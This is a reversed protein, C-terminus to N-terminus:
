KLDERLNERQRHFERTGREQVCGFQLLFIRLDISISANIM